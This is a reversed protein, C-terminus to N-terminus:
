KQNDTQIVGNALAILHDDSPWETLTDLRSVIRRQEEVEDRAKYLLVYIKELLQAYEKKKDAIRGELTKLEEVRGHVGKVRNVAQGIRADHAILAQVADMVANERDLESPHATSLIQTLNGLDKRLDHSILTFEQQINKISIEELTGSSKSM